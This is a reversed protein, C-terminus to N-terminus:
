VATRERIYQEQSNLRPQQVLKNNIFDKIKLQHLNDDPIAGSFNFKIMEVGRLNYYLAYKRKTDYIVWQQKVHKERFHKSVLPLVDHDPNVQAFFVDDHTIQFCVSGEIYKKERAVAKALQNIKTDLDSSFNLSLPDNPAFLNKIYRYLLLEIGPVESMFAFYIHKIAMANKAQISNWVRKALNVQTFVTETQSFLGKQCITKKQIDAVLTKLEYVRFITTLFGNFSGDYILIKADEMVFQIFYNKYNSWFYPIIGLLPFIGYFKNSINWIKYIQLPSPTTKSFQFLMFNIKM